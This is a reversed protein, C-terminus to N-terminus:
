ASFESHAKPDLGKPPHTSGVGGGGQQREALPLYFNRLWSPLLLAAKSPYNPWFLHSTTPQPTPFRRDASTFRPEINTQQWNIALYPSADPNAVPESRKAVHNILFNNGAALGTNESPIEKEADAMVRITITYSKRRRIENM